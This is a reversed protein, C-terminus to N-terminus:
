YKVFDDIFSDLLNITKEDTLEGSSLLSNINNLAPKFPMVEMGLYHCVATLQDMGRANGTRGASVGIFAIKKGKFRAPLVSDIFAKSVGPFGGNYEPSLWLFKDAPAIKNEVINKFGPAPKGYVENHFVFDRPLNELNILQIEEKSKTKLLNEAYLSFISTLNGARNTGNVVTIM